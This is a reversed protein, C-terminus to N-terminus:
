KREKREKEKKHTNEKNKKKREYKLGENNSMHGIRWRRRSRTYM